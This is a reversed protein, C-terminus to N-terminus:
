GIVVYLGFDQPARSLLLHLGITPFEYPRTLQSVVCNRFLQTLPRKPSNNTKYLHDIDKQRSVNKDQGRM